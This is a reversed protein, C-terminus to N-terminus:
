SSNRRRTVTITLDFGLARCLRRWADPHAAKGHNLMASVNSQAIGTRRGLETNTMRQEDRADRLLKRDRASLSLGATNPM